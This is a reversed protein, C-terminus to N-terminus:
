AISTYSTRGYHLTAYKVKAQFEEATRGKSHRKSSRARKHGGRPERSIVPGGQPEEFVLKEFHTVSQMGVIPGELM